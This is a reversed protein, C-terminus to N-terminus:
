CRLRSYLLTIPGIVGSTQFVNGFINNYYSVKIKTYFLVKEWVFYLVTACKTNINGNPKMSKTSKSCTSCSISCIMFGTLFNIYFLSFRGHIYILVIWLLKNYDIWLSCNLNFEAKAVKKFAHKTVRASISEVDRKSEKVM